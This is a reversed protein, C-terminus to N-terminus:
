PTRELLLELCRLVDEARGKLGLRARPVDPAPLSRSTLLESLTISGEALLEAPSDLCPTVMAVIRSQRELNEPDVQYCAKPELPDELGDVWGRLSRAFEAELWLSSYLGAARAEPLLVLYDDAVLKFKGLLGCHAIFSKGSNEPGLILLGRGAQSLMAGHFVPLGRDHHWLLWLSHLPKARDTPLLTSFDTFIVIIRSEARDFWAAVGPRSYGLIQDELQGTLELTTGSSNVAALKVELDPFDKLHLCQVLLDAPPSEEPLDELHSFAWLLQELGKGLFHFHVVGAPFRKAVVTSAAGARARDWAAQCTLFQLAGTM